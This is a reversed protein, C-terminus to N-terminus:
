RRNDRKTTQMISGIEDLVDDSIDYKTQAFLIASSGSKDFVFALNRTNAIEEIANYVKEQIPQVLEMRKRYLDGDKGFRTKQLAKAEKEKEVIANERLHKMDEPLLVAEAQYDKYMKDIEAFLSEVEKQWESAMEDLIDQADTYEPINKLIYDTDVYAYKQGLAFTTIGFAILATLIINKM